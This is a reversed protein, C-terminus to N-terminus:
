TGGRETKSGRAVCRCSSYTAKLAMLSHLARVMSSCRSIKSRSPHSPATCICGTCQSVATINESERGGGGGGREELLVTSSTPCTSYRRRQGRSRCSVSVPLGMERAPVTPPALREGIARAMETEQAQEGKDGQELANVRVPLVDKGAHWLLGQSQVSLYGARDESVQAQAARKWVPELQQVIKRGACRATCSSQLGFSALEHRPYTVSAHYFGNTTLLRKQATTNANAVIHV